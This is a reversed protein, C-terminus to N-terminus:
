GSGLLKFEPNDGSEITKQYEPLLAEGMTTSNGHKDTIVLHSMFEQEFETIGGNIAVFKAKLHSLLIRHTTNLEKERQREDDGTYKIPIVIRVSRPKQGENIEAIFELAFKDKLNTFRINYIGLENLKKQLETQSKAWSVTTTRYANKIWNPQKMNNFVIM